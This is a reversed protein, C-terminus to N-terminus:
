DSHLEVTNSGGTYTALSDAVNGQAVISTNFRLQISKINNISSSPKLEAVKWEATTTGSNTQQFGGADENYNTSDKFTGSFTSSGDTVKFDDGSDTGLTIQAKDTALKLSSVTDEGDVVDRLTTDLNQNDSTSIKLLSHYTASITKGTLGAM